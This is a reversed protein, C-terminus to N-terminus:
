CLRSMRYSVEGPDYFFVPMSKSAKGLVRSVQYIRAESCYPKLDVPMGLERNHTVSNEPLPKFRRLLNEAKELRQKIGKAERVYKVLLDFLFSSKRDKLQQFSFEDDKCEPFYDDLESALASACREQLSSQTGHVKGELEDEM